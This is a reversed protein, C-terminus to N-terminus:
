FGHRYAMGVWLRSHYLGKGKRGSRHGRFVSTGGLGRWPGGPRVPVWFHPVAIHALTEKSPLWTQDAPKSGLLVKSVGLLKLAPASDGKTLYRRISHLPPPSQKELAQTRSAQSM